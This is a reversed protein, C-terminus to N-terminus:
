YELRSQTSVRNKIPVKDHRSLGQTLSHKTKKSKLV